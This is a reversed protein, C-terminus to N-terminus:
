NQRRPLLGPPAFDFSDEVFSVALIRDSPRRLIGGNDRRWLGEGGRALLYRFFAFRYACAPLHLSQRFVIRDFREPQLLEVCASFAFVFEEGCVVFRRKVM